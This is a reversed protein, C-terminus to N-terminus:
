IFIYCIILVYKNRIFLCLRSLIISQDICMLHFLDIFMTKLLAIVFISLVCVFSHM